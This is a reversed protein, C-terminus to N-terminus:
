HMVRILPIIGCGSIRKEAVKLIDPSLPKDRIIVDIDDIWKTVQQRVFTRIRYATEYSQAANITALAAYNRRQM